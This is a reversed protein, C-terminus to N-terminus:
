NEVIGKLASSLIMSTGIELRGVRLNGLIIEAKEKPVEEERIRILSVMDNLLAMQRGRTQGLTLGVGKTAPNRGLM